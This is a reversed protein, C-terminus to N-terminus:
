KENLADAFVKELWLQGLKITKLEEITKMNNNVPGHCKMHKKVNM